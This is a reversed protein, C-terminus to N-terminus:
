ARARVAIYAMVRNLILDQADGDEALRSLGRSRLFGDIRRDLPWDAYKADAYASSLFQWALADVDSNTPSPPDGPTSAM